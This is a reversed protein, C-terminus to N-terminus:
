VFQDLSSKLAQGQRALAILVLGTLALTLTEVNLNFRVGRMYRFGNDILYILGPQVVIAAFAGLMLGAGIERLGRVMAPGFADGNDIRVFVSSAAWLAWLFFAPALLSVAYAAATPPGDLNILRRSGAADFVLSLAVVAVVARTLLAAFPLAPRPM